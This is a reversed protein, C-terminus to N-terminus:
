TSAVFARPLSHCCVGLRVSLWVTDSISVRLSLTVHLLPRRSVRWLTLCDAGHTVYAELM